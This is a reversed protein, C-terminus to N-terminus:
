PEPNIQVAIGGAVVLPHREDRDASRLPLGARELLARVNGYDDEFSLSFAVVDFDSLPRGSELTRPASGDDPLFARECLAAPDANLLRYVAHLGLNAMGLRYTNPYVLAVGLKGGPDKRVVGREDTPRARTVGPPATYSSCPRAAM